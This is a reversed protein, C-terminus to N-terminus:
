SRKILKTIEKFLENQNQMVMVMQESINIIQASQKLMVENVKENQFYISHNENKVISSVENKIEVSANKSEMLESVPIQLIDAFKSVMEVHIGTIGSEYKSYAPPSIKLAYAMEKQSFGKEMRKKRLVESMSNM